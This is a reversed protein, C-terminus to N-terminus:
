LSAFPQISYCTLLMLWSLQWTGVDWEIIILKQHYMKQGKTVIPAHGGDM